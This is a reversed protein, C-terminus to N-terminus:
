RERQKGSGALGAPNEHVRERRAHGLSAALGVASEGFRDRLSDVAALAREWRDRSGSDFLHLQHSPSPGLASAQVGLLRVSRRRAYHRAFLSRVTQLVEGDLQTAEALTAARTHTTFDGYRIRIQLRRAWLGQERLRRAVLQCLKALTSDILDRDRTDQLFTTEHSVSKPPAPGGFGASFWAGSDLGAAKGALSRGAKGFHRELFGRGKARAEGITTVELSKLSRQMVKGVGPVLGVELPALFTAERGPVVLLVGNPKALGSCIKAVVRSAGIGISCPLSTERAVAEHLQHAAALPPGFLKETGTMDLYAEDISAAEVLPSFERLVSRVRRSYERYRHPHGQVFVAEPCLQYARRLPMASRIGFRRAPYSAAAVVGRQGPEGGVVVPRGKLGPDSLEEVSVFFADMDLHFIVRARQNSRETM